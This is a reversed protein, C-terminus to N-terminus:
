TELGRGGGTRAGVHWGSQFAALVPGYHVVVRDARLRVHGYSSSEHCGVVQPPLRSASTISLRFPYLRSVRAAAAQSCVRVQHFVQPAM